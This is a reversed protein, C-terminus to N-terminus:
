CSSCGCRRGGGRGALSFSGLNRVVPLRILLSLQHDSAGEIFVRLEVMELSCVVRLGAVFNKSFLLFEGSSPLHGLINGVM